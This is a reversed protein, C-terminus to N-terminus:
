ALQFYENKATAGKAIEDQEQRHQARQPPLDPRSM